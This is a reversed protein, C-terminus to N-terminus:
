ILDGSLVFPGWYYPNPHTKMLQLKSERLAAARNTSNKSAAMSEYFLQMMQTTEESAVPWLSMVVSKAGAIMFARKLGFAGDGAEIDGVGTDCASLIAIRTHSMDLGVIEAAYLIGARQNRNAGALVIGARYMPNSKQRGVPLDFESKSEAAPLPSSDGEDNVFFGHTAIHLISPMKAGLIAAKTAQHALLTTTAVKKAALVSAISNAELRTDDLAQFSAMALPKRMPMLAANIGNGPPASAIAAGYDPAGVILATTTQESEQAARLLDMASTVYSIAVDQLVYRGAPSVFAEFPVLQLGADPDVVWHKATGTMSAIPAVIKNFLQRGLEKLKKEQPPMQNLEIANRITKQYTAILTDIAAADGLKVVRIVPQNTSLVFAVYQSTDGPPNLNPLKMFELLVADKPLAAALRAVMDGQRRELFIKEVDSGVSQEIKGELEARKNMLDVYSRLTSEDSFAAQKDILDQQASVATLESFTLALADNRRNRLILAKANDFDSLSGKFQLLQNFALNIDAEGAPRSVVHALYENFVQKYLQFNFRNSDEFIAMKVWRHLLLSQSFEFADRYATGAEVMMGRRAFMRAFALAGRIPMINSAVESGENLPSGANARQGLLRAGSAHVLNRFDVEYLRKLEADRSLTVYEAGLLLYIRDISAANVNLSDSGNASKAGPMGQAMGAAMGSGLQLAGPLANMALIFNKANENPSTAAENWGDKAVALFEIAMQHNGNRSNVIAADPYVVMRMFQSKSLNAKNREIFDDYLRVADAGRGLSIYMESLGTLAVLLPRPNLPAFAQLTKDEIANRYIDEAAQAKGADRFILAATYAFQPTHGIGGFQAGSARIESDLRVLENAMPLQIEALGLGTCQKAIQELAEGYKMKAAREMGAQALPNRRMGGLMSGIGPLNGILGLKEKQVQLGNAADGSVKKQIQAYLQEHDAISKKCTEELRDKEATVTDTSNASPTKMVAM